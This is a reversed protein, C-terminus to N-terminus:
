WPQRSPGTLDGAPMILEVTWTGPQRGREIRTAQVNNAEPTRFLEIGTEADTYVRYASLTFAEVGDPALPREAVGIPIGLVVFAVIPWLFLYLVLAASWKGHCRRKARPLDTSM